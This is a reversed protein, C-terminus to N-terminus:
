VLIKVCNRVGCKVLVSVSKWFGFEDKIKIRSRWVGMGGVVFILLVVIKRGCVVWM